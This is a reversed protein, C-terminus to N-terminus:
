AADDGDTATVIVHEDSELAEALFSRVGEEDDVVLIRAMEAGRRCPSASSREAKPTIPPWWPAATASPTGAPSPWGWGPGACGPPSSPSSSGNRRGPLSAPARM